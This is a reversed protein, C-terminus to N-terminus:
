SWRLSRRFLLRVTADVKAFVQMPVYLIIFLLVHPITKLAGKLGLEQSVATFIVVTGTLVVSTYGALYSWAMISNGEQLFNPLIILPFLLYGLFTVYPILYELLIVKLLFQTLNKRIRKDPLYDRIVQLGGYYWRLKQHYVKRWGDPVITHAKARPEYRTRYGLGWTLLTLEFDEAMTKPMTGNEKLRHIIEGKYASLAGSVVFNPNQFAEEVYKGVDFGIKYEIWQLKRLIGKGWNIPVLRGSVAGTRSDAIIKEVLLRITKKGVLTDADVIIVVDGTSFMLGTNIAIHKGRSKEHKVGIIRSDKRQFSEVIDWTNDTSGDDVVVVNMEGPYDSNLIARLCKELLEKENYAPVIVSVSPWNKMRVFNQSPMKILIRAFSVWGYYIVMLGGLMIYYTTSLDVSEWSKTLWKGLLVAVALGIVTLLLTMLLAAVRQFLFGRNEEMRPPSGLKKLDM